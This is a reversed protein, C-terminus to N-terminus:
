VACFKVGLFAACALGLFKRLSGMSKRLCQVEMVQFRRM